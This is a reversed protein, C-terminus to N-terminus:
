RAAHRGGSAAQILYSAIDNLPLIAACLNAHAVAGPMGWVVSSAEDQAIVTGGAAVVRKAGALGDSGMGTLVLTLLQKQYIDCLSDLMPDAAPRCFNVPPEQNLMVTVGNPTKKMVMHYNGPAIYATGAKVLDGHQAEVCHIKTEKTLHDALLATFKAPMHQTIFIPLHNLSGSIGALVQALAQPGGTSSAIALAGVVEGPYRVPSSIAPRIASSTVAGGSTAARVIKPKALEPVRSKQAATGLAIVKDRLEKYFADIANPDERSSPKPVYDSAGLSLAKLSIEANRQSLTSAMIVHSYPSLELLLPLATIGDMKPMEIDLIIVDIEHQLIVRTAMEGDSASAIIRIMPDLQLARSMLGRVVASDDVLMVQIPQPSSSIQNMNALNDQSM